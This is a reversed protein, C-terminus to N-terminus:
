KVGKSMSEGIANAIANTQRVLEKTFQTQGEIIGLLPASLTEDKVWTSVWTRKANQIADIYFNTLNETTLNPTFM